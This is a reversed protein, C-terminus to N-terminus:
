FCNSMICSRCSWGAQSIESESSTLGAYPACHPLSLHQTQISHPSVSPSIVPYLFCSVSDCGLCFLCFRLSMNGLAHRSSRITGNVSSTHTCSPKRCKGLQRKHSSTWTQASTDTKLQYCFIQSLQLVKRHLSCTNELAHTHTNNMHTTHM